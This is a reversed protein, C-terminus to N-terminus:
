CCRARPHPPPRCGCAVRLTPRPLLHTVQYTDYNVEGVGPRPYAQVRLYMRRIARPM